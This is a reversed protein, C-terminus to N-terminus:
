NCGVHAHCRRQESARDHSYFRLWRGEDDEHDREGQRSPIGHHVGHRRRARHGRFEVFRSREGRDRWPRLGRDHEIAGALRGEGKEGLLSDVDWELTHRRVHDLRQQGDLVPTEVRVASDIRPADHRGRPSVEPRAADTFPAAGDRLLQRARHYKRGVPRVLPLQALDQDCRAQLLAVALGPDELGIEIGHVEALAVVADLRRRAAIEALAGGFELRVLRRQQCRQDTRWGAIRRARRRLPRCLSAIQHQREHAVLAPELGARELGCPHLGQRVRRVLHRGLAPEGSALRRRTQVELFLDTALEHRV